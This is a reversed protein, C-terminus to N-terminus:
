NNVCLDDLRINYKLHGRLENCKKKLRESEELTELIQKEIDPPWHALKVKAILEDKTMHAGLPTSLPLGGVIQNM